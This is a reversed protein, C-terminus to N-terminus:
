SGLFLFDREYHRLHAGGDVFLTQGTTSEARALFLVADAISHPAPLAQLPTQRAAEAVSASAYTPTPITLGPAVASVRVHPAYRDALIRTAQALAVKSLTYSFQDAHPSAIRQDLINVIALKAEANAQKAAASALLVPAVCNVMYHRTLTLGTATEPTDYEFLAANSVLLALPRGWGEEMAAVLAQVGAEEGLDAVIHAWHAGAADLEAVLSPSPTSSPGSHLILDYGARGLAISLVAGLRRCGGTVLALPRNGEEVSGM